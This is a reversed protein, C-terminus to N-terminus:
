KQAPPKSQHPVNSDKQATGVWFLKFNSFHHYHHIYHRQYQYYVDADQPLWLEAKHTHFSVPAYDISFHERKMGIENVAHVLDTDLHMVEGGNESIWARGKLPLAYEESPTEFAQLLSTPEDTKQEFHIVWAPKGGWEGLGECSWRFAGSFVPHFVLALAPTGIDALIGPMNEGASHSDRFERVEILRPNPHEVLALYSYHRAEPTELREDRKIEVSQYDETASFQQLTNVLEEASHAAMKMAKPLSCSADSIVFPSAADVDPPAWDEKPPLEVPPPPASIEAIAPVAKEAPGNQPGSAATTHQAVPVVAQAPKQLNAVYARIKEANSDKPYQKLYDEFTTIAEDREGLGALAQALILKAPAAEAKGVAIAREAHERSKAYDRTRLYANALMWEGKWSKSDLRVDQELPQIAGANENLQLRATGLALLAAPRRPDLSVSKALFGEAQSFQKSMLYVMGAVYNVYPSAPAMGLAKSLHKEASDFKKSRMEKLGRDVEKQARPALIQGNLEAANKKQGIPKMFVIVDASAHDLPPLMTDEYATQYGDAKVEVQYEQSVTLNSFVWGQGVQQAISPFGIGMGVVTLKLQPMVSLPEGFEDRLYVTIMGDPQLGPGGRGQAFSLLPAAPLLLMLLLVFRIASKMWSVSFRQM